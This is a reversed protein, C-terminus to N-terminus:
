FSIAVSHVENPQLQKDLDTIRDITKGTRDTVDRVDSIDRLETVTLVDKVDSVDTVNMIDRMDTIERVKIMKMVDRMHRVDTDNIVGGWSVLFLRCIQPNLEAAANSCKTTQFVARNNIKMLPHSRPLSDEDTNSHNSSIGM